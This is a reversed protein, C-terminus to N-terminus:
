LAGAFPSKQSSIPEPKQQLLEVKGRSIRDNSPTRIASDRQDIWENGAMVCADPYARLVRRDLIQSAAIPRPHVTLEDARRVMKGVSIADSDSRLLEGEAFDVLAPASGVLGGTEEVVAGLAPQRVGFLRADARVATGRRHLLLAGERPNEIISPALAPRELHEDIHQAPGKRKAAFAVGIADHV